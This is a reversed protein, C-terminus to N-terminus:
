DNRFAVRWLTVAWNFTWYIIPDSLMLVAREACTTLEDQVHLIQYLIAALGIATFLYFHIPKLSGITMANFAVFVVIIIFGRQELYSETDVKGIVTILAPVIEGLVISAFYGCDALPQNTFLSGNFLYVVIYVAGWLFCVAPLCALLDM